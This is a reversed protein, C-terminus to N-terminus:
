KTSKVTFTACRCPAPTNSVAQEWAIFLPITYTTGTANIGKQLGDLVRELDEKESTPDFQVTYTSETQAGATEYKMGSPEVGTQGSRARQPRTDKLWAENPGQFSLLDNASITRPMGQQTYTQLKNYKKTWENFVATKDKLQAEKLSM